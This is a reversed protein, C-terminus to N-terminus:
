DGAEVAWWTANLHPPLSGGDPLPQMQLAGGAVRALYAHVESSGDPAARKTAVFVIGAGDPWATWAPGAPAVLVDNARDFSTPDARRALAASSRCVDLVVGDCRLDVGAEDTTRTAPVREAATVRVPWAPLTRVRGEGDPIMVTRAPTPADPSLLRVFWATGTMRLDPLAAVRPDITLWETADALTMSAVTWGPNADTALTAADQPRGGYALLTAGAVPDIVLGAVWAVGDVVFDRACAAAGDDTCFASRPDDWHGVLVVPIPSPDYQIGVGPIPPLHEGPRGSGAPRAEAPVEPATVGPLFRPNFARGVPPRGSASSTTVTLLDEPNEMLWGFMAPCRAELPDVPGPYPCSAAWPASYWGAVAISPPGVPFPRPGRADRLDLAEAVSMVRRGFAEAPYAPPTPYPTAMPGPSGSPSATPGPGTPSALALACIVAVALVAAAAGRIALRSGVRSQRTARVAAMTDDLLGPPLLRDGVFLAERLQDDLPDGPTMGDRPPETSM